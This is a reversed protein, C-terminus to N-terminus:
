SGFVTRYPLIGYFGNMIIYYYMYIEYSFIYVILFLKRKGKLLKYCHPVFLAQFIMFFFSLRLIMESSRIFLSVFCIWFYFFQMTLLVYSVNDTKIKDRLLYYSCFFFFLGYFINVYTPNGDNYESTFFYYYKTFSAIFELLKCIFPTLIVVSCLIFLYHKRIQKINLFLGPVIMIVATYHFLMAALVHCFYKLPNKSYLCDVGAFIITAAIAQRVNNLSWFYYCSLLIVVFSLFYNQSHRIVTRLLFYTFIFSTVVFLWVFDDTFIQIIKILLNFGMESYPWAGNLSANFEPVYTYFYDTGVDYRIGSIFFVPFLALLFLLAYIVKQKRVPKRPVSVTQIPFATEIVPTKIYKKYYDGAICTLIWTLLFVLFYIYM